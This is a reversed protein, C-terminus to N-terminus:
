SKLSSPIIPGVGVGTGGDEGAVGATYEVETVEVEVEAETVEVEAETVEAETVEVEAETVEVEAEAEVGTFVM